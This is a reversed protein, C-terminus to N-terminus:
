PIEYPDRGKFFSQRRQEIEQLELEYDDFSKTGTGWCEELNGFHKSIRLITDSFSEDQLKLAKLAKYAEERVTITKSVM